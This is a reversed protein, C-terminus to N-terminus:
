RPVGVTLGESVGSVEVYGDAFMGTTVPLTGTGAVVAYGGGPRAVLANVPVALVDRRTETTITVSVKGLNKGEPVSLEVPLTKAAPAGIRTVRAPVTSGDPLEVTAAAGPKVLDAYDLDLDVDVVRTTGTWRLLIGAAATGPLGTVAAVRRAGAAVVADGARVVGTRGRGLDKQWRRVADATAATYDDDVTFGTYGLAALNRELQEVDDGESGASLTRYAPISGYLLPVRVQDVRYVTDGREVVAGEAPLWTILGGGGPAAPVPFAPGFGLTGGVKEGRTLTRREVTTTAPAATPAVSAPGADRCGCLGAGLCVTM